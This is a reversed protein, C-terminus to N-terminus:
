RWPPVPGKVDTNQRGLVNEATQLANGIDKLVGTHLTLSLATRFLETNIGSVLLPLTDLIQIRLASHHPFM